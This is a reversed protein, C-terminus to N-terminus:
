ETILAILAISSASTIKNKTSTLVLWNREMDTAMDTYRYQRSLFIEQKLEGTELSYRQLRNNALLVILSPKHADHPLPPRLHSPLPASVILYDEWRPKSPLSWLYNLKNENHRIDFCQMERDFFERIIVKGEGYKFDGYFMMSGSM